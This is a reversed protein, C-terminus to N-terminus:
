VSSEDFLEFWDDPAWDQVGVARAKNQIQSYTRERGTLMPWSAVCERAGLVPYWRWLAVVERQSWERIVPKDEIEPVEISEIM